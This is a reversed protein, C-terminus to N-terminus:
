THVGLVAHCLHLLPSLTGILFLLTGTTGHLCFTNFFVVERVKAYYTTQERSTYANLHAGMNEVEEELQRMSRSRFVSVCFVILFSGEYSSQHM